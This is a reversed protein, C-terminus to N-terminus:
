AAAGTMSEAIVTDADDLAAVGLWYHRPAPKIIVVEDRGHVRLERAGILSHAIRVNLRRGIQGLLERLEGAPRIFEVISPGPKDELVFRVIRLPDEDALDFVEARMRRRGRLSLWADLASLFARAYGAIERRSNAQQVSAVRGAEWEWSARLLGDRVVIRDQDDLGYLDFVAEDLTVWDRETVRAAVGGRRYRDEIEILAQGQRTRVAQKLDPVPLRGLDRSLVRRMGLGFEAATMVFFWSAFASSLIAAVVHAVRRASPPFAVGYFANTYVTDRAAVAVVARGPERLFEQTILLPARYIARERPREARKFDIEPLQDPIRFPTLGRRLIPSGALFSADRSQNGRILGARRETGLDALRRDLAPYDAALQELLALDRRHGVAAAKLRGAHALDASSLKIIDSPSVEFTHTKAAAPSWPVQVITIQDRPQPRHRGFLVVAPMTPSEFLWDRMNALNVLTVPALSEITERAAASGTGSASFFPLASLVFGFRTREHAFNLARGVFDLSEGRPQMTNGGTSARRARRREQTGARGRFGWPPNGIIVDFTRTKQNSGAGDSEKIEVTRADEILLTRGILPRFRLAEAPRPDPDLVLAALYLSFAAVRIAAESIDVGYVQEYLARRVVDRTPEPGALRRLAEVLFVASGCALDLVTENGTLGDMVEDLVLSVLSLRTHHVSRDAAEPLGGEQAFQEYISSILEIPIVDFRYPFLDPQGDRVGDFFDAVRALHVPAPPDSASDPFMDGNFTKILWAFLRETASRDRLVPPLDNRGTLRRLRGADVIGRDILYKVFIVRGILAQAESRDLAANVLDRELLALDSLLQQDVGTKRDIASAQLWFQGTEMALRGAFADLRLLEAEINQFIQIRHEATDAAADRRPSGFGNYLEISDPSIIWLLPAFGENWVERRWRAILGDAPRKEEFKFYVTLASANRWMADPEFDRGRRLPRIADGIYTGPAPQGQPLYGTAELVSNFPEAAVKEWNLKGRCRQHGTDPRLQIM